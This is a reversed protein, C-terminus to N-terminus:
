IGQTSNKEDTRTDYDQEEVILKVDESQCKYCFLIKSIPRVSIESEWHVAKCDQCQYAQETTKGM